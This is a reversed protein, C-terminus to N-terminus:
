QVAYTNWNKSKQLEWAFLDVYINTGVSNLHNFDFYMTDDLKEFDVRLYDFGNSLVYKEVNKMFARYIDKSKKNPYRFPAEEVENVILKVQRDKFLKVIAKFNNYYEPDPVFKDDNISNIPGIQKQKSRFFDHDIELRTYSGGKKLIAFSTLKDNDFLPTIKATNPNNLFNKLNDRYKEIPIKEKKNNVKVGYSMVAKDFFAKQKYIVGKKMTSVYIPPFHSLINDKIDLLPFGWKLYKPIDTYKIPYVTVIEKQRKFNQHGISWVVITDKPM